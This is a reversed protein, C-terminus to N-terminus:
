AHSLVPFRWKHNKFYNAMDKMIFLTDGTKLLSRQYNSEDLPTFGLIVRKITENTILQIVDNLQVREKSFVDSLYLTDDEIDMIIATNLKELYYMSNKKYSSCYFMILSTNNQMSVKSIPSTDNVINLFLERDFKNDINLKKLSSNLTKSTSLQKSYQYEDIIEFDFKPYFDLVSDNAFLYIFDCHEKWENLVQEMIFKSLGRHRYEKDTMVTGIQVAVKKENEIIFEMKNVSVNSIVKNKHLLSYPIYNDNWYGNLYWNELDFQFVAQTLENFSARIEQNHRFDKVFGYSISNVEIFEM